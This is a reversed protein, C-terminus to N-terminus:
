TNTSACEQTRKKWEAQQPCIRLAFWFVSGEGERSQVGCEAGHLDMIKKVISLGLGTGCVARRHDRNTRYYREWIYPLDEEAIGCGDDEVEVRVIGNRVTQRVQIQRKEGAYSVANNLFNTLVQGIKERDAEVWAEQACVFSFSYHEPEWLRRYREVTDRVYATLNYREVRLEVVGAQLKSIDLMDGVLANLRRTEDLIVRINEPTNEGPIDLMLEAYAEMLTLPTRLDHSVNAILEQRLTETRALEQATVNLTGALESLERFSGDEFRVDYRGEGLRGAAENMRVIPRTVHRSIVFAMGLALVLMLVSVCALQTRLTAVTTGLPSILSKVIIVREQGAANEALQVAVVSQGYLAFFEIRERIYAQFPFSGADAAAALDAGAMEQPYGPIEELSSFFPNDADRADGVIDIEARGGGREAAQCYYRFEPENVFTKAGDPGNLVQGDRDTVTIVLDYEKMLEAAQETLDPDDLLGEVTELAARLESKKINKYFTDLYVTQFVWLIGLLIAAFLLFYGFIHWKYSLKHKM